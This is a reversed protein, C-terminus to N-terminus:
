EVPLEARTAWETWGADYWKVDAYGLLHRLVFCTQSAQHGTRCHVVIPVSKDPLLRAYAAELEATPLLGGRKDLDLKYSRNIAGPIHGARAEDSEKGEFYATPRVDLIVTTGDGIRRRVYEADVTFDDDAPPRAYSTPSLVPLLTDVPRKEAVWTDFGGDLVSWAAHGVRQLGLAVLTADRLKGGPVLVITDAAGVGMASLHGALLGAPLLMSPIGNSVGRFSEVNLSLSGPIHGTNYEPQKRVDILVLDPAGLREALWGTTVLRDGTAAPLAPGVTDTGGELFFRRWARVREARGATLPESRLSVPTLCEQVFGTLGDTLFFVNGFGLRTLTDRAQAPHTMGNSYLVIRGRNRYPELLAPLDPLPVHMAGRIHFAAYEDAPRVDVVVLGPERAMLRDALEDPDVHDEAAEISALHEQAGAATAVHSPAAEGTPGPLIFLALAFVGFALGLAKLFPTGFYVGGGKRKELWESFYFAGIAVVTLLLGFVAPSAGFAVLTGPQEGWTYLPRVWEFMENFGITGLVAGGLFVAADTKGCALGVAATGPCWGGMVFGIGFIVGGVIQAGYITPMAFVQESTLIGLRTLLGLGLMATVLATFMVKIVAMDRGYFVGALRRSSGFGARELAFGFLLGIVLAFFWAEPTGLADRGYFTEIM